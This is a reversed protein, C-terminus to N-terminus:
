SADLADVAQGLLTKAREVLQRIEDTTAGETIRRRLEAGLLPELEANVEPAREIVQAEILEYHELYTEAALEAAEDTAGAEVKAVIEDLLKEIAEAESAPDVEEIPRAGVAEELEHAVLKAAAEVDDVSTLTTPPQPGPLAKALTEFAEEIEAAEAAAAGQVDASIAAYLDSAEAAFGYGDQYEILLSLKGGQVAEEYEHAATALLDAIVSGKYATTAGADGVIATEDQRTLNAATKYAAELADASSGQAATVGAQLAQELEAALGGHETLEGKISALIEAVPHTAHAVAGDRDGARYIELSVRHHGRIQALASGAAVAGADIQAGGSASATPTPNAPGPTSAPSGSPAGSTCAAAVLVLAMVAPLPRLSRTRPM